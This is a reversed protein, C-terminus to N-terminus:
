RARASRIPQSRRVASSTSTSFTRREAREIGTRSRFSSRGHGLGSVGGVVVLDEDDIEARLHRLEDRPPHPLLPDIGLDHRELRGLLGEALHLRLAHDEGAPRGRHGLRDRRPRRLVDEAGAHRHEADAIALLRHRRLEAALDLAAMVALEAAGLDLDDGLARQELAHPSFALAIRDPHAMAVPHRPQRRAELDDAARVVCGEGRDGVLRAVEVRHLEMGLHHVGRVSRRQQAVEDAPDDARGAVPGHLGEPVFGDGADPRLDAAAAHDAAEGAADIRGDGRHQNVLRDGILEGADEDVVPQEAGALGLADHRQEAIEYLM